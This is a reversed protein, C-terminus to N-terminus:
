RRWWSMQGANHDWFLHIADCDGGSLTLGVVGPLDKCGELAGEETDCTAPAVSLEAPLGCIAAQAAPDIGFRLMQTKTSGGLHIAVSVHDTQQILNARDEIGDGDFDGRVEVPPSAGVTGAIFGACIAIITRM